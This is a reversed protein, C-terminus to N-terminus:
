TGSSASSDLGEEEDGVGGRKFVVGLEDGVRWKDLDGEWKVFRLDASLGLREDGKCLGREKLGAWVARFAEGECEREVTPDDDDRYWVGKVAMRHLDDAPDM